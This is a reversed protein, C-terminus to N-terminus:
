SPGPPRPPGPSRPPGATASGEAAVPGVARHVAADVGPVEDLRDGRSALTVDSGGHVERAGGCAGAGADDGEGACGGADDDVGPPSVYPRVRLPDFGDADVAACLCAAPRRRTRPCLLAPM